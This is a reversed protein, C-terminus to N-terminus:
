PLDAVFRNLLQLECILHTQLKSRSQNLIQMSYLGKEKCDGRSVGALHHTGNRLYALMDETNKAPAFGDRSHHFLVVQAAPASYVQQNDVLNNLGLHVNLLPSFGNAGVYGQYARYSAILALMPDAGLAQDDNLTAGFQQELNYLGDGAYVAQIDAVRSLAPVAALASYAGQSAGVIRLNRGLPTTPFASAFYARVALLMDESAAATQQAHFSAAPLHASEGSGILDPAFFVQGKGAALLGTVLEATAASSVAPLTAKAPNPEGLLGELYYNGYMMSGPSILHLISGPARKASMAPFVAKDWGHEGLVLGASSFDFTSGDINEPYMLLGSLVAPAGGAGTSLYTIRKIVANYRAGPKVLAPADMKAMNYFSLPVVGNRVAGLNKLANTLYVNLLENIRQAPIRAASPLGALAAPQDQVQQLDGHRRANQGVTFRAAPEGEWAVQYAEGPLLDGRPEVTIVGAVGQPGRWERRQVEVTAVVAGASDRVQLAGCRGPQAASYAVSVPTNIFADGSNATPTM